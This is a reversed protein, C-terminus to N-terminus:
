TNFNYGPPGGIRFGPPNLVTGDPSKFVAGRSPYYIAFFQTIGKRRFADEYEIRGYSCFFAKGVGVPAVADMMRTNPEFELVLSILQKQGPPLVMTDETLDPRPLYMPTAELMPKSPMAPDPAVIRCRYDERIIRAPTNGFNQIQWVVGPIQGKILNGTLPEEPQGAVSILVWARDADMQAKSSQEAARASNEAAQAARRIERTQYAVVGVSIILAWATIGEPWAVFKYWWKPREGAEPQDECNCSKNNVATATPAQHDARKDHEKSISQQQASVLCIAFFVLALYALVKLM